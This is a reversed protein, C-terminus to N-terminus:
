HNEGNGTEGPPDADKTIKDLLVKLTKIHRDLEDARQRNDAALAANTREDANAAMLLVLNRREELMRISVWVSEELEIAQAEYLMRETYVHGTHCRYRHLPDKRIAWLGGGCELCTFDTHDAIAKIGNTSSTMSATIDAEIQIERPVPIRERVPLDLVQELVNGMDALKLQYDARIHNLVSQPMDSFQAELPDQVVCVGGCRKIAMMGSTGDDLLGTLIIGIVRPGYEVAASRFLVDISPRYKNERAGQHILIKNEKILMHQNQPALYLHGNEIVQGSEPVTCILGTTKQIASAIVRANSRLSLHLVVFVAANVKSPLKQLLRQIAPMGGASAGIVVM